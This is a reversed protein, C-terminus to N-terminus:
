QTIGADDSVPNFRRVVCVCIINSNSATFSFRMHNMKIVDACDVAAFWEYDYWVEKWCAHSRRGFIGLYRPLM